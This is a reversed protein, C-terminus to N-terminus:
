FLGNYPIGAGPLAAFLQAEPLEHSIQAITEECTYFQQVPASRPRM